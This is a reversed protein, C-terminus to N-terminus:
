SWIKNYDCILLVYHLIGLRKINSGDFNVLMTFYYCLVFTYITSHGNSMMCHDVHM